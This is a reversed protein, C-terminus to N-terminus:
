EFKAYDTLKDIQYITKDPLEELTRIHRTNTKWFFKPSLANKFLREGHYFSIINDMTSHIILKPTDVIKQIDKEAVYDQNFTRSSKQMSNRILKGPMFDMALNQASSLSGDLILADVEQQRDSVLKTAIQGGLSMGYVIVKLSDNRITSIFDNFAAETDKLVGKYGPKGTSKGYGRWDVIYVNYNGSVLTRIMNKYTSVNGGNGHILFINAKPSNSKFYYTYITINKEVDISKEEYILDKMEEIESSPNYFMRSENYVAKGIGLTAGEPGTLTGQVGHKTGVVAGKSGVILGHATNKGGIGIGRAAQIIGTSIGRAVYRNVTYFTNRRCSGLSFWETYLVGGINTKVIIFPRKKIHIVEYKAYGDPIYTITKNLILAKNNDGDEISIDEFYSDFIIADTHYASTDPKVPITAPRSIEM